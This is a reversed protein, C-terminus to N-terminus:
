RYELDRLALIQADVPAQMGFAPDHWKGRM